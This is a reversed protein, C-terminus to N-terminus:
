VREVCAADRYVAFRVAGRYAAKSDVVTANNEDHVRCDYWVEVESNRSHSQRSPKFLTVSATEVHSKILARKTFSYSQNPKTQSRSQHGSYYQILPM